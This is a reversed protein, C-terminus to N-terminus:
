LGVMDFFQEILYDNLLRGRLTPVVRNGHITLLGDDALKAIRTRRLAFDNRNNATSPAVSDTSAIDDM